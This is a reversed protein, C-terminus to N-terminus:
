YAQTFYTSKVTFYLTKSNLHYYKVKPTTGDLGCAAKKMFNAVEPRSGFNELIQVYPRCLKINLCTGATRDVAECADETVFIDAQLKNILYETRLM